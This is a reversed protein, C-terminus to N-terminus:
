VSGPTRSGSNGTRRAITRKRNIQDSVAGAGATLNEYVARLTRITVEVDSEPIGKLVVDGLARTRPLVQRLIARGGPALSLWVARKDTPSEARTLLGLQQANMVVRSVYSLEFGSHSALESLTLARFDSLILLMQWVPLAVDHAKLLDSMTAAGLAGTRNLM